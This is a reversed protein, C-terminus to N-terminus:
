KLNRIMCHDYNVKRKEIDSYDALQKITMPKLIFWKDRPQLRKWFMDIAYSSKRKPNRTLLNVGEQINEILTSLYHNQVIYGVTVQLNTIRNCYDKDTPQHSRVNGGIALVDWDTTAMDTEFKELQSLFLEPQTFVIDDELICIQSFNKEQAMKLCELHSKSCGLAGNTPISVANFREPQISKGTKELVQNLQQIQQEFHTKRDTRHELNIYLIHELLKM